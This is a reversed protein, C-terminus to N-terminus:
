AQKDEDNLKDYPAYLLKRSRKFYIRKEKIFGKQVLKRVRDLAWYVQRIYHYKDAIIKAKPFMARCVEFYPSYMDM